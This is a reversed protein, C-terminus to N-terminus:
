CRVVSSVSDPPECVCISRRRNPTLNADIGLWTRDDAAATAMAFARPFAAQVYEFQWEWLVGDLPGHALRGCDPIPNAVKPVFRTGVARGFTGQHRLSPKPTRPKIGNGCSVVEILSAGLRARASQLLVTVPGVHQSFCRSPGWRQCFSGIGHACSACSRALFTGVLFWSAGKPQPIHGAAAAGCGGM